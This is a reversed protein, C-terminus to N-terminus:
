SLLLFALGGAGAGMLLGTMEIRDRDGRPIATGHRGQYVLTLKAVVAGIAMGALADPLGPVTQLVSLSASAALLLIGLPVPRSVVALRTVPCLM